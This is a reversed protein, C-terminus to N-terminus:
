KVSSLVVVVVVVVVVVFAGLPDLGNIISHVSQHRIDSLYSV